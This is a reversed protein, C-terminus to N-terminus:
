CGGAGEAAEAQAEQSELEAPEEVVLAKAQNSAHRVHSMALHM